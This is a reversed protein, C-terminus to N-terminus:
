ESENSTITAKFVQLGVNNAPLLVNIVASRKSPSFAVSQRELVSHGQSISFAANVSKTGSYQLFVEVPFKNKHFAYKNVNLRSIKIDLFTTTDGLVLPYVKNTAEFSYLYDNGSTQNGDTILITPHFKNKHISQLSKAVSEINSQTGKFDPAESLSFDSDFQYKEVAFKENLAKNESLKELLDTAIEDAKLEKVSSSNDIVIPLPTKEIEYSSRSIAPNILLLLLGFISIFRLSALLLTAKTRKGAKFFYQYFSLGAAVVIAAILLLITTTTM